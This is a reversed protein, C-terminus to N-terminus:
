VIIESQRMLNLLWRKAVLHRCIYIFMLSDLHILPQWSSGLIYSSVTKIANLNLCSWKWVVGLVPGFLCSAWVILLAILVTEKPDNFQIQWYFIEVPDINKRGQDIEAVNNAKNKWGCSLMGTGLLLYVSLQLIFSELCSLLIFLQTDLNQM